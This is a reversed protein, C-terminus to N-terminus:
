ELLGAASPSLAQSAEAARSLRALAIAHYEPDREMAIVKMGQVEAAELIPGSGCCPDLVVDGRDGAISLLHDLLAVPKEAAHARDGRTPRTFSKIDAGGGKLEKAGKTFFAFSEYTRVFGARGWPAHGDEGKQWIVPNQWATFAQQEAYTKLELWLKMDCFMFILGKPKLVRFGERIITKCVKLANEPSDDYFHKATKKMQDADIGYPPDTLIIDVSGAPLKPLLECCDGLMIEHETKILNLQVLQARFGAQINDQVVRYAEKLSKAAKIREGIGPKNIHAQVTESRILEINEAEETKGTVKAIERAVDMRTQDPHSVARLQSILVRAASREQWSLDARLLNEELEAEALDALTLDGLSVFPISGAPVPTGDHSFTKGESYILRIAESRCEGAILTKGDNRLVLPHMLGKSLISNALDRIHAPAKDKRQRDPPIILDSLPLTKM